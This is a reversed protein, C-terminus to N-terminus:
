FNGKRQLEDDVEPFSYPGLGLGLGRDWCTGLRPVLDLGLTLFGRVWNKQVPASVIIM